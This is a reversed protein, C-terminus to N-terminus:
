DRPAPLPSPSLNKPQPAGEIKERKISFGKATAVAATISEKTAEIESAQLVFVAPPVVVPAEKQAYFDTWDREFEARDEDTWKKHIEPTALFKKLEDMTKIGRTIYFYDKTKLLM